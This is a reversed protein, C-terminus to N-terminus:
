AEFIAVRVSEFHVGHLTMTMSIGDFIPLFYEQGVDHTLLTFQIDRNKNELHM